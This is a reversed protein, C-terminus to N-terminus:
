RAAIDRGAFRVWADGIRPAGTWVVWAFNHRPAESDETKEFWRPRATLLVTGAFHPHEHVLRRRAKAAIWEARVLLAVGCHDRVGLDILHTALEKLDNYPLNTVVWAFGELTTLRRIDGIGIDHVLPDSYRHLDFSSVDLGARRLEFSLHGRGAAPELVRDEIAVSRLLAPVVWHADITLYGDNEVREFQSPAVDAHGQPPVWPLGTMGGKRGAAPLSQRHLGANSATMENGEASVSESRLVSLKTRLSPCAAATAWASTSLSQPMDGAQARGLPRTQRRGLVPM